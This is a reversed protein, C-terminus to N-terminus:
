STFTKPIYFVSDVSVATAYFICIYVLAATVQSKSLFGGDETGTSLPLSKHAAVAVTLMYATFIGAEFNNALTTVGEMIKILGTPNFVSVLLVPLVGLGWFRATSNADYRQEATPPTDDLYHLIGVNLFFSTVTLSVVIFVNVLLGIAVQMSDASHRFVAMLPVTAIQGSDFASALLPQPVILLIAVVWVVNLIYCAVLGVVTAARYDYIFQADVLNRSVPLSQVCLQFTIPMLAVIGGLSMTSVLFPDVLARWHWTATFNPNGSASPVYSAGAGLTLLILAVLLAGKVATAVSLVPILTAHGARFATISFVAVLIASQVYLPVHSRLSPFIACLAQPIALVYTVLVLVFHSLVCANYFLRPVRQAIFLQSLTHLSPFNLAPTTPSPSSSLLPSNSEPHRDPLPQSPSPNLLLLARYLLETTAYILALQALMTLTFLLLFPQLGSAHLAVPLALVGTGLTAAITTAMVQALTARSLKM